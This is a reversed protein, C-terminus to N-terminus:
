QTVRHTYTAKADKRGSKFWGDGTWDIDRNVKEHIPQIYPVYPACKPQNWTDHYGELGWAKKLNAQVENMNGRNAARKCADAWFQANEKPKGMQKTITKNM